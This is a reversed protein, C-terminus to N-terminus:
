IPLRTPACIAGCEKGQVIARLREGVTVQFVAGFEYAGPYSKGAAFGSTAGDPSSPHLLYGVEFLFNPADRIAFHFGTPDQPYLDRNGAMVARKAYFKSTPAFRVEIRPGLYLAMKGFFAFCSKGARTDVSHSDRASFGPELSITELTEGTREWMPRSPSKIQSNAVDVSGPGFPIRFFAVKTVSCNPCRVTMWLRRTQVVIFGRVREAPLGYVWLTLINVAQRQDVAITSVLLDFVVSRRALESAVALRGSSRQSM